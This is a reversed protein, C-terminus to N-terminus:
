GARRRAAARPAGRALAEVLEAGYGRRRLCLGPRVRGARHIGDTCAMGPRLVVERECRAPQEARLRVARFFHLGPLAVRFIADSSELNGPCFFAPAFAPEHM